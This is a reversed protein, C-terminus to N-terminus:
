YVREEIDKTGSLIALHHTWPIGGLWEPLQPLQPKPSVVITNQENDSTILQPKSLGM